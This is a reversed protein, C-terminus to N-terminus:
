SEQACIQCTEKEPDPLSQLLHVSFSSNIKGRELNRVTEVRNFWYKGGEYSFCVYTAGFNIPASIM